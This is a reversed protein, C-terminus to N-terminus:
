PPTFHCSPSYTIVFIIVKFSFMIWGNILYLECWVEKTSIAKKM